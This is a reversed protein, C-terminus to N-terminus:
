WLAFFMSEYFIFFVIFQAIIEIKKQIISSETIYNIKFQNKNLFGLVEKLSEVVNYAEKSM